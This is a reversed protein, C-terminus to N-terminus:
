YVGLLMKIKYLTNEKPYPGYYGPDRMLKFRTPLSRRARIFTKVTQVDDLTMYSEYGKLLEHATIVGFHDSGKFLALASKALRAATPAGLSREGVENFGSIRRKIYSHELDPVLWGCAAGVLHAWGDHIRLWSAPEYEQLKDAFQANFVMTCGSAWGVTLILKLSHACPAFPAYESAGGQLNADTNCVDSYYLRPGDGSADIAVIARELKEPLWFDDQDSFAFFDYDSPNAEYVMDMFNKALGKNAANCRFRVNEFRAAYSECIECTADTSGDDSIQLTVDVGEQTLISEIQEAVYREGNYTAMMVLVTPLKTTDAM